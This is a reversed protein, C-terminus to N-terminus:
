EKAGQEPESTCAEANVIYKLATQHRTEGPHKIGVAMILESYKGHLEDYADDIKTGEIRQSPKIQPRKILLHREQKKDVEVSQEM